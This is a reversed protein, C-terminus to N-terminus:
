ARSWFSSDSTSTIRRRGNIQIEYKLQFMDQGRNSM